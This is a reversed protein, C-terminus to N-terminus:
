QEISHREESAIDHRRKDALKKACLVYAKVPVHRQNEKCCITDCPVSACLANATGCIVLIKLQQECIPSIAISPASRAIGKISMLVNRREKWPTRLCRAANNACCTTGQTGTKINVQANVM